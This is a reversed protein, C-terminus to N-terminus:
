PKKPELGEIAKQAEAAVETGEFDEGISKLKAIAEERDLRVAKRIELRGDELADSLRQKAKEVAQFGSFRTIELLKPITRKYKKRELEKELKSLDKALRAEQADVWNQVNKLPKEFTKIPDVKQSLGRKLALPPQILNGHYDTLVFTPYKDPVEYKKRLEDREGCNEDVNVVVVRRSLENMPEESFISHLESTGKIPFWYLIGVRSKKAKEHADRARTWFTPYSGDDRVMALSESATAPAGQFTSWFLASGLWFGICGTARRVTGSGRM